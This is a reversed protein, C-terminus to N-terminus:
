KSGSLDDDSSDLWCYQGAGGRGARCEEEVVKLGSGIFGVGDGIVNGGPSGDDETLFTCQYYFSLVQSQGFAISWSPKQDYDPVPLLRWEEEGGRVCDNEWSSVTASHHSPREGLSLLEQIGAKSFTSSSTPAYWNIARSAKITHSQSPTPSVENWLRWQFSFFTHHVKKRVVVKSRQEWVQDSKMRKNKWLELKGEKFM